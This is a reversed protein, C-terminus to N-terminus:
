VRLNVSHSVLRELYRFGARSIGFFRVGVISVQLDAISPHLAASAILFASTGLLGIGSSITAIGLVVSLCIEWIFPKLFRLLKIITRM